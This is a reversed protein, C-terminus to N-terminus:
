VGKDRFFENGTLEYLTEDLNKKAETVLLLEQKVNWQEKKLMNLLVNLNERCATLKKVHDLSFGGFFTNCLPRPTVAIAPPFLFAGSL